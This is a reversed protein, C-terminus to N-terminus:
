SKGQQTASPSCAARARKWDPGRGYRAWVAGWVYENVVEQLPATFPDVNKYTQEVQAAGLVEKRRALGREHLETTM